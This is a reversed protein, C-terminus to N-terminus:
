RPRPQDILLRRLFFRCVLFTLDSAAFGFDRLKATTKKVTAIIRESPNQHHFNLDTSMGGGAFGM